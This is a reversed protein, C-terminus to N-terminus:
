KRKKYIIPDFFEKESMQKDKNFSNIEDSLQKDIQMLKRDTQKRLYNQREEIKEEPVNLKRMKDNIAKIEKNGTYILITIFFYLVSVLGLVYLCTTIYTNTISVNVLIVIIFFVFSPFLPSLLFKKM